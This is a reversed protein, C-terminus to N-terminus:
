SKGQRPRKKSHKQERGKQFSQKKMKQKREKIVQEPRKLESRPKFKGKKGSPENDNSAQWRGALHNEFIIENNMKVSEM